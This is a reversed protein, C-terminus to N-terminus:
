VDTVGVAEIVSDHNDSLWKAGAERLHPSIFVYGSRSSPVQNLVESVASSTLISGDGMLVSFDVSAAATAPSSFDRVNDSGFHDRAAAAVLTVAQPNIATDDPRRQYLVRFHNRETIRRAMEACRGKTKVSENMAAIVEVDTMALHDVVNTSFRGSDLWCALFDVL